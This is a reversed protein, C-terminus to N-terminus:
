KAIVLKKVTRSGIENILNVFYIGNILDLKLSTGNVDANINKQLVVKGNVDQIVVDLKGSTNIAYVSVENQAPNPYLEYVPTQAFRQKMAKEHKALEQELYVNENGNTGNTRGWVYGLPVCDADNYQVATQHIHNYLARAEYVVAGDTFPCQYCLLALDLEDAATLPTLTYYKNAIAFYTKYNQEIPTM